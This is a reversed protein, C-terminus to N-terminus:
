TKNDIQTFIEDPDPFRGTEHKSYIRMGDVTVDFIGKHGPELESEVGYKKKIEAAM